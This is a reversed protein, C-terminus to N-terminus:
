VRDLNRVELVLLLTAAIVLISGFIFPAQYNVQEWLLGAILNAPFLVVGSALAIAGFATGRRM